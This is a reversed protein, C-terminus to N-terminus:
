ERGFSQALEKYEFYDLPKDKYRDTAGFYDKIKVAGRRPQTRDM